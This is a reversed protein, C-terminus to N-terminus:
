KKISFIKIPISLFISISSGRTYSTFAPYETNNISTEWTTEIRKNFGKHYFFGLTARNKGFRKFKLEIGTTLGYGKNSLLNQSIYYDFSDSESGGSHFRYPEFLYKKFKEYSIGIAFNLDFLNKIDRHKKRKITVEKIITKSFVLEFFTMDFSNSVGGKGLTNPSISKQRVGTSVGKSGYKLAFSNNNKFDVQLAINYPVSLEQSSGVIYPPLSGRDSFSSFPIELGYSPTISVALKETEQGFSAMYIFLSIFLVTKRM